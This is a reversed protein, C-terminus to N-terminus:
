SKKRRMYGLGLLATSFLLMTAPEPVPPTRGDHEQFFRQTISTASAVGPIGCVYENEVTACFTAEANLHIDKRVWFEQSKPSLVLDDGQFEEPSPDIVDDPFLGTWLFSKALNDGGANQGTWIYEDIKVFSGTTAGAVMSQGISTVFWAPDNVKVKFELTMDLSTGVATWGANFNIGVEGDGADFANVTVTGTYNTISFNSFTKDGCTVHLYSTAM